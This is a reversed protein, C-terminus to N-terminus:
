VLAVLVRGNDDLMSNPQIKPKRQAVAIDLVEHCPLNYVAQVPKV